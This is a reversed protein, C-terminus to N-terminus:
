VFFEKEITLYNDFTDSIKCKIVFPEKSNIIVKCIESNCDKILVDGLAISWQYKLDIHPEKDVIVLFQSEGEKILGQPKLDVIKFKPNGDDTLIELNQPKDDIVDWGMLTDSFQKDENNFHIKFEKINSYQKIPQYLNGCLIMSINVNIIHTSTEEYGADDFSIDLLKIFIRTAEKLNPVDFIDMQVTPNFKPAVQEIIKTAETLGRCKIVCDFYFDYPVSNYSYEVRNEHKVTNIKLNKNLTRDDAKQISALTFYGRPLVNYNGKTIQETTLDDLMSMKEKSSFTIPVKKSIINDKSDITSVEIDNLFNQMLITYKKITEHSIM